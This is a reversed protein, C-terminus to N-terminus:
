QHPASFSWMVGGSGCLNGKGVWESNKEFFSFEFDNHLFHELLEAPVDKGSNFKQLLLETQASQRGCLDLDLAAYAAATSVKIGTEIYRISLPKINWAQVVEDGYGECYVLNEEQLFFPVDTGIHRGLQELQHKGLHMKSGFYRLLAAANSSGGGLGGQVPIKKKLHIEWGKLKLLELARLLTNNESPVEPHECHLVNVPAQIPHLEIEDFFADDRYMVTNVFHKQLKEDKGL